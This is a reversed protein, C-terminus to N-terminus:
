LGIKNLHHPKIIPLNENGEGTLIEGEVMVKIENVDTNETLSLLVSQLTEPAITSEMSMIDETFHVTLVEETQEIDKVEVTPLMVGYLGAAKPGEILHQISAMAIDEDTSILRTVPVLYSFQEASEAQFYLTVARSLGLQTDYPKEINIGIQRSLPVDLPFGALPMENLDTGEVRWIVQEISPFSTLAWTVSEILKREKSEDYNLLSASFDVTAINEVINIGKVETNQPILQSFGDPLMDDAVGGDVMHELTKAAVDDSQPITLTLPVIFDNSDEAYITIDMSVVNDGVMDNQGTSDELSQEMQPPDIEITEQSDSLMSCGSLLLLLFFFVGYKFKM